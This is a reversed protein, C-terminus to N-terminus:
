RPQAIIRLVKGSSSVWVVYEYRVGIIEVSWHLLTGSKGYDAGVVTGGGVAASAIAIAQAKSIVGAAALASRDIGQTELREEPLLMIAAAPRPAGLALASATLAFIIPLHRM